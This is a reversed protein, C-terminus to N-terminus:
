GWPMPRHTRASRASSRIPPGYGRRQGANGVPATGRRAEGSPRLAGSDLGCVIPSRPPFAEDWDLGMSKLRQRLRGLDWLQVHDGTTAAALRGGDPSFGLGSVQRPEPALLTALVRGTAPDVLQVDTVTRAIALVRGDPAFALPAPTLEGADRPLVLGPRWTGVGYFRYERAGGVVLWRGDPSFAVHDGPQDGPLTWSSGGVVEWVTVFARAFPPHGEYHSAAAWRGDPALAIRVRDPAAPDPRLRTRETGSDGDLIVVEATAGDM